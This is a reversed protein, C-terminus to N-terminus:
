HSLRAVSWLNPTMSQPHIFFLESDSIALLRPSDMLDFLLRGSEAMRLLRWHPERGVVDFYQVYLSGDAAWFLQSIRSYSELWRQRAETDADDPPPDDLRRFHQFPIAVQRLPTGDSRFFYVTDSLAFVAAVTDGHMALDAWGSFAYANDLSSRHRPVPFFSRVVRKRSLDWVHVLSGDLRQPDRAVLAILSDSLPVADYLPSLGVLATGLVNRGLSDFTVLKGAMDLALIRGDPMPVAAALKRFEGAGDGAGGFFSILRGTPSYERIQAERLDAVVFNGSPTISVSPTVNIVSQNEELNITREWTVRREISDSGASARAPALQCAAPIALIGIGFPFMGTALRPARFM